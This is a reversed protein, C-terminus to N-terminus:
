GRARDHRETWELLRSGIGRGEREPAVVVLTGMRRVAAYAVIRGDLDEVVRADQSLDFDSSGWEDRLAELTQEVEGLDATERAEFVALVASVDAQAPARFRM